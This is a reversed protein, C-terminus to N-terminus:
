LEYSDEFSSSRAAQSENARRLMNIVSKIESWLPSFILINQTAQWIRSM